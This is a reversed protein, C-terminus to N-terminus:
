IQLLNRITKLKAEAEEHEQELSSKDTYGCGAFIECGEESWQVLRIALYLRREHHQYGFPAGYKRRPALKDYHKLWEDQKPYTGIAATPHLAQVVHDFSLSHKLTISIPTRLHVLDHYPVIEKEGIEVHGLKEFAEKIGEVVFDNEEIEKLAFKESLKKTGAFGETVLTNDQWECLLEPTAGLIGGEKGWTGYLFPGDTASLNQIMSSLPPLDSSKIVTYPVTKKLNHPLSYFPVPPSFTLKRSATEPLLSKLEGKPLELTHPHTHWPCDATLFFDPSYWSSPQPLKHYARKGWGILLHGNKLSVLSGERLFSEIM